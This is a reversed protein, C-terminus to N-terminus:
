YKPWEVDAKYREESMAQEERPDMKACERWLLAKDVQVLMEELATEVVESRSRYVRKKVLSDIKRLIKPSMSIAIKAASM